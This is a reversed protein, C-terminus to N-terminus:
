GPIFEDSRIYYNHCCDSSYVVCSFIFVAVCMPVLIFVPLLFYRKGDGKPFLNVSQFFLKCGTLGKQNFYISKFSCLVM